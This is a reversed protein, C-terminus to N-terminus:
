KTAGGTGTEGNEQGRALGPLRHWGVMQIVNEVNSSLHDLILAGGDPLATAHQSLLNLGALDIFGLESFDLHVARRVRQLRVLEELFATHRVADLEGELRLGPPDFTRAIKLVGDDYQPDAEVLVEHKARLAALEDPLCANRDVQCLAMAMTSPAVADDLHHECGLMQTLAAGGPRRLLWTYDVTLRAARFGEDFAREFEGRLTTLMLDPDFRGRDDLCAKARPIIRLQRSETFGCLALRSLSRLGPLREPRADTVYVVKEQTELAEAVFPGVVTDREETGSYPLWGHDGPRIAGVPRRAFQINDM